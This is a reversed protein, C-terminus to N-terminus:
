KVGEVTHRYYRGHEVELINTGPTMAYLTYEEESLEQIAARGWIGIYKMVWISDRTITPARDPYQIKYYKMETDLTGRGCGM